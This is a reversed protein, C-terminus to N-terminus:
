TTGDRRHEPARFVSNEIGAGGQKKDSGTSLGSVTAQLDNRTRNQLERFKRYAVMVPVTVDCASLRPGGGNKTGVGLGPRVQTVHRFAKVNPMREARDLEHRKAPFDPTTMIDAIQRCLYM